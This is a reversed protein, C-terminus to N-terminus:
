TRTRAQPPPPADPGGADRDNGSGTGRRAERRRARAQREQRRHGDECRDIIELFEPLSERRELIQALQEIRSEGVLARWTPSVVRLMSASVFNMPQVMELMMMAPVAMRARVIREATQELLARDQPSLASM